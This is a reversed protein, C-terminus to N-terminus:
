EENNKTKKLIKDIENHLSINGSVKAGLGIAQLYGTLEKNQEKLEEIQKLGEFTDIVEKLKKNEEQLEQNENELTDREDRLEDMQREYWSM